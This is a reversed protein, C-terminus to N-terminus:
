IVLLQLTYTTSDDLGSIYTIFLTGNNHYWSINYPALLPTEVDGNVFLQLPIVGMPVTRLSTAFQILPFNDASQPSSNYSSTTTFSVRRLQCAINENFTINRNLAYYVSEMFSNIPFLLKDVWTPADKLDERLIRRQNPLQAM